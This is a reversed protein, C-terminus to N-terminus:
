GDHRRIDRGAKFNNREDREETLRSTTRRRKASARRRRPVEVTEVTTTAPFRRTTRLSVFRGSIADRGVKRISM